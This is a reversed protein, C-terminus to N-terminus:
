GLHIRESMTEVREPGFVNPKKRMAAASANAGTLAFPMGSRILDPEVAGIVPSRAGPARLRRIESPFRADSGIPRARETERPATRYRVSRAQPM